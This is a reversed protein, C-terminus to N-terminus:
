EDSQALGTMYGPIVLAPPILKSFMSHAGGQITAQTLTQTAATEVSAMNNAVISAGLCMDDVHAAMDTVKIDRKEHEKFIKNNMANTIKNGFIIGGVLAALTVGAVPAAKIIGNLFKITKTTGKMQPMKFNKTCKEYLSTAGAVFGIPFVINGIYQQLSERFKDKSNKRDVMVGSALGGIVSGAGLGLIEKAEFKIHKLGSWKFVNLKQKKGILVLAALTGLASMGLVFAKEGKTISPEPENWEPHHKYSPRHGFAKNNKYDQRIPQNQATLGHIPM